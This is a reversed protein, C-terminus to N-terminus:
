KMMNLLKSTHYVPLCNEVSNCVCVSNITHDSSSEGDPVWWLVTLVAAGGGLNYHLVNLGRSISKSKILKYQKEVKLTDVLINEEDYVVPSKVEQQIMLDNLMKEYASLQVM